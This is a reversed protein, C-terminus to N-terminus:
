GLAIKTLFLELQAGMDTETWQRGGRVFYVAGDGYEWYIRRLKGAEVQDDLWKQMSKFLPAKAGYSLERALCSVRARLGRVGWFRGRWGGSIVGEVETKQEEKAAYKRAYRMMARFGHKFKEFRTSTQWFSEKESDGCLNFRFCLSAWRDALHKWPIFHTYFIHLHPAGRTQFEVFWFISADEASGGSRVHARRLDRMAAVLWRDVARRFDAPDSSFQAGVTLTGFYRYDAKAERLYRVMRSRSSRTFERVAGRPNRNSHDLIPVCGVSIGDRWRRATYLHDRNSVEGPGTPHDFPVKDPGNSVRHEGRLDFEGSIQTEHYGESGPSPIHPISLGIPPRHDPAPKLGQSGTDGTM